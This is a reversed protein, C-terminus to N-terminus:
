VDENIQKYLMDLAQNTFRKINIERNATFNFRKSIINKASSVAIWITGVPKEITGGEPGAIGSTAIGYDTGMQLRVGKAMQEVVPQSVAGYVDIDVPNVNLLKEKIENSYAIISGKYFASSGPVSTILHSIYGGTCSEATSITIKNKIAVQNLREELTLSSFEAISNPIILNLKEIEIDIQKNLQERNEGKATIRLKVLGASPLYALGFNSPLNNEWEEITEALISEPINYVLVTKNVIIYKGNKKKIIPLIQKEFMAQMEFPVGPMSFIIAEKHNFMMGPATGRSNQLVECTKPVLAQSLNQKNLKINRNAFLIKINDLVSENHVLETNFFEALTHKTIDDNTPGLGGTILVVDAHSISSELVKKIHNKEDSIAIIQRVEVGLENLHKAIFNSNTDVIQGILIEDGIVIIDAKM